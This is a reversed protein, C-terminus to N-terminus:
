SRATRRLIQGAATGAVLAALTGELLQLLSM